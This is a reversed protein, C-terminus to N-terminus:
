PPFVPTRGHLFKVPMLLTCESIPDVVRTYRRSRYLFNLTRLVRRSSRSLNEDVESLNFIMFLHMNDKSLAIKAIANM